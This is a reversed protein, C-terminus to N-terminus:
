SGFGRRPDAANQLENRASVLPLRVLLHMYRV